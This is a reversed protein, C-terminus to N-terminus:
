TTHITSQRTKRGHLSSRLRVRPRNQSNQSDQSERLTRPKTVHRVQTAATPRVAHQNQEKKKKLCFVAYSIWEHSSNLRTSKRDREGRDHHQQHGGSDRDRRYPHAVALPAPRAIQLEGGRGVQSGFRHGLATLQVPSVLAIAPSTSPISTPPDETLAPSTSRLAPLSAPSSIAAGVGRGEVGTATVLTSAASAPRSGALAPRTPTAKGLTM